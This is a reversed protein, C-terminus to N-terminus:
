ANVKTDPSRSGFLVCRAPETINWYGSIPTCSFVTGYFYIMGWAFVIVLLAITLKRFTPYKGNAM